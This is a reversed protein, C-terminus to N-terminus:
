GDKLENLEKLIRACSNFRNQEIEVISIAQELRTPARTILDASESIQKLKVLVIRYAINAGMIKDSDEDPEMSKLENFTEVAKQDVYAIAQDIENM